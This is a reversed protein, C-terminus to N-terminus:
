RYSTTASYDSGLRGYCGDLNLEYKKSRVFHRWENRLESAMAQYPSFKNKDDVQVGGSSYPLHDRVYGRAAIEFLYACAGRMHSIRWPFNRVTYHTEIAYAQNFETVADHLATVIQGDSFEFDNLLTNQGSCVDRLMNRVDNVTVTQVSSVFTADLTPEVSLWYRNAQLLSGNANHVSIQALYIGIMRRTVTVPIVVSLEGSQLPTCETRSVTIRSTVEAKITLYAKLGNSLVVSGDVTETQLTVQQGTRDYVFFRLETEQGQQLSLVPVSSGCTRNSAPNPALALDSTGRDAAYQQAAQNTIDGCYAM